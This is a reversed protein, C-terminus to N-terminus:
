PTESSKETQNEEKPSISAEEKPVEKKKDKSSTATEVDKASENADKLLKGSNEECGNLLLMVVVISLKTLERKM